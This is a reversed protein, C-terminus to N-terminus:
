GMLCRTRRLNASHVVDEATSTFGGCGHTGQQPLHLLSLISHRSNSVQNSSLHAHHGAHQVVTMFLVSSDGSPFPQQAQQLAGTVNKAARGTGWQVWHPHM